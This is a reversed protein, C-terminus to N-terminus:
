MSAVDGYIQRINDNVNVRSIYKVPIKQLRAVDLFRNYQSHCLHSTFFYIVETGSVVSVPMTGQEEPTLYNWKPFMNRLKYVWNSHGGIIAIKRDKIARIMEEASPESVIEDPNEPESVSEAQMDVEKEAIGSIEKELRLVKKRELEYLERQRDVKYQLEQVKKQLMRIEEDKADQPLVEQSVQKEPRVEPEAITAEEKISLIFDTLCRTDDNDEGLWYEEEEDRILPYGKSILDVVLWGTDAIPIRNLRCTIYAVSLDTVGSIEDQGMFGKAQRLSFADFKKAQRYTSKAYRKLFDSTLQYAERREKKLDTFLMNLGVIVFAEEMCFGDHWIYEECDSANRKKSYEQLLKLDAANVSGATIGDYIVSAVIRYADSDDPYIGEKADELIKIRNFEMRIQEEESDDLYARLHEVSPLKLKSYDFM